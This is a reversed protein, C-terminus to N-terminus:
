EFPIQEFWNPTLLLFVVAIEPNRQRISKLGEKAHQDVFPFKGVYQLLCSKSEFNRTSVKSGESGTGGRFLFFRILEVNLVLISVWCILLGVFFILADTLKKEM